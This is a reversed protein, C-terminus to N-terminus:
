EGRLILHWNIRYNPNENCKLIGECNKMTLKATTNQDLNRKKFILSIAGNKSGFEPLIRIYNGKNEAVTMYSDFSVLEFKEKDWEFEKMPSDFEIELEVEFEEEEIIPNLTALRTSRSDFWVNTPIIENEFEVHNSYARSILGQANSLKFWDAGTPFIYTYFDQPDLLVTKITTDSTGVKCYNESYVNRVQAITINTEDGDNFFSGVLGLSTAQYIVKVDDEITSDNYRGLYCEQICDPWSGNYYEDSGEDQVEVKCAVTLMMLGLILIKM